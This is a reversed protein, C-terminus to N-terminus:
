GRRAHVPSRLDRLYPAAIMYSAHSPAGPTWQVRFTREPLSCTVALRFPTELFIIEFRLTGDDLWGGCCAHPVASSKGPGGAATDSKGPGEAAAGTGQQGGVAQGGVAWAGHGLVVTLDSGVEHLTAQWGGRSQGVTVAVLSRQQDFTAGEPVFTTSAWRGPEAPAAQAPFPPLALQRLRNELRADADASALPADAFGPLLREWVADLMAQMNGSGATMVIVADQEPLVLCLQGRAGDFRYGHRSMWLQYGYGQAWDPRTALAHGKTPIRVSTAAAIWEQGLLRAGDWVGRQLYLQGLRAITGTTAYMGTFGVDQGAPYQEARLPGAGLRALLRSDLYRTVTQGTRRQVITALTYTAAQNYAFVSGPDRDPPWLLFGRVPNAPDTAVARGWVDDLHGSAMAAVHRVLMARVRPDTIESDLEPFYAIVPEDFDVLGEDAALAAATATFTKSLSFLAHPREQAYPAWWGAAIVRGHRLVMVSHAEVDQTDELADIFAVIAGADVGEAAPSSQPLPM